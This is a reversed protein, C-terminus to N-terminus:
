ISVMFKTPMTHEFELSSIGLARNVQPEENKAMLVDM